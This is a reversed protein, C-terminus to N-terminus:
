REHRDEKTATRRAAATAIAAESGTAHEIRVGGNSTKTAVTFTDLSEPADIIVIGAAGLREQPAPTAVASIV